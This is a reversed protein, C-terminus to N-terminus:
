KLPRMRMGYHDRDSRNLNIYSISPLQTSLCITAAFEPALASGDGVLKRDPSPLCVYTTIVAPRWAHNSRKLGM